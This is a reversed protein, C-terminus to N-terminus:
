AAEFGLDTQEWAPDRAPARPRPSARVGLHELINRIVDPPTLTALVRLKGSCRPCTLVDFGWSRKRLVAWAVYRARAFLEGDDLRGWHAVTIM